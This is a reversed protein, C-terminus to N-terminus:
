SNAVKKVKEIGEALIEEVEGKKNRVQKQMDAGYNMAQGKVDTLVQEVKARNKRNNLAFAGVIVAGIGIFVGALTAVVSNLGGKIEDQIKQNSNKM